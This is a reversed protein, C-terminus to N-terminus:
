RFDRDPPKDMLWMPEVSEGDFNRSNTDCRIETATPKRVAITPFLSELGASIEFNEGNWLVTVEVFVSVRQLKILKL